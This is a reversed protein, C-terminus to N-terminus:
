YRTGATLDHIMFDKERYYGRSDGSPTSVVSGTGEFFRKIIVTINTM